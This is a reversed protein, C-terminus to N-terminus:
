FSAERFRGGAEDCAADLTFTTRGRWGRLTAIVEKGGLIDEKKSPLDCASAELAACEEAGGEWSAGRSRGGLAAGELTM